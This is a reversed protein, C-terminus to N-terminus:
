PTHIQVDFGTVPKLNETLKTTYFFQCSGCARLIELEQDFHFNTFLKMLNM